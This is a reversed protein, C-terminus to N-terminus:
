FETIFNLCYFNLLISDYCFLAIFVDKFDSSGFIVTSHRSHSSILFCPHLYLYINRLFSSCSFSVM